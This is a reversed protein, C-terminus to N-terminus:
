NRRIVKHPKWDDSSYGHRFKILTSYTETPTPRFGLAPQNIGTLQRPKFPPLTKFHAGMLLGLYLTVCATFSVQYLVLKFFPGM